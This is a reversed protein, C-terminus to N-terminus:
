LPIFVLFSNYPKLLTFLVYNINDTQLTKSYLTSSLAHSSLVALNNVDYTRVDYSQFSLSEIWGLSKFVEFCPCITHFNWPFHELFEPFQQIESFRGM